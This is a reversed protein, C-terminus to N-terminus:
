STGLGAFLSVSCELVCTKFLEALGGDGSSGALVQIGGEAGVPRVNLVQKEVAGENAGRGVSAVIDRGEGADDGGEGSAVYGDIGRVGGAVGDDAGVPKEVWAILFDGDRPEFAGPLDKLRLADPRDKQALLIERARVHRAVLINQRHDALARGADIVCRTSAGHPLRAIPM